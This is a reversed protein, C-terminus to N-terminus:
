GQGPFALPGIRFAPMGDGTCRADGVALDEDTFGTGFVVLAAVHSGVVGVVAVLQPAPPCDRTIGRQAEFLGFELPGGLGPITFPPLGTATARGPIGDGVVRDGVEDIYSGAVACGPRGVDT